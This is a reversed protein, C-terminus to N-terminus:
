AKSSAIFGSIKVMSTNLALQSHGMDHLTCIIALAIIGIVFAVIAGIMEEPTMHDKTERFSEEPKDKNEHDM